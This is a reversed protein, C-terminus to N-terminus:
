AQIVTLELVVEARKLPLLTVFCLEECVGSLLSLFYRKSRVLGVGFFRRSASPFPCSKESVNENKRFYKSCQRTPFHCVVGICSVMLCNYVMVLPDWNIRVLSFGKIWAFKVNFACFLLLTQPTNKQSYKPYLGIENLCIRIYRSGGTHLSFRSFVGGNFTVAHHMKCIALKLTGELSKLLSQASNWGVSGTRKLQHMHVMKSM